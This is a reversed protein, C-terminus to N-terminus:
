EITFDAAMKVCAAALM